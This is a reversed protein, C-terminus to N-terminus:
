IRSTQGDCTRFKLALIWSLVIDKKSLSYEKSKLFIKFFSKLSSRFHIELTKKLSDRQARCFEKNLCSLYISDMSDCGSLEASKEKLFRAYWEFALRIAEMKKEFNGTKSITQSNIRYRFGIANTNAVGTSAAAIIASVDDSGWALPLYFFGGNERLKKVNFLFDGIYQRNRGNWRHWLLSLASEWEPRSQQMALCNSNEDILETLAHYLGLNPYKEILKAYTSLCNPALLDDDGMCILYDGSAYELCRNWNLVVREAGFNKENKYYRIKSDNFALVDVELNEPSCDNVVIIEYNDYNQDLCSQISNKLFARKYAPIAISFKIEMNKGKSM